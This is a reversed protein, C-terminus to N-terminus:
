EASYFLFSFKKHFCPKLPVYENCGFEGKKQYWIKKFFSDIDLLQIKWAQSKGPMSEKRDM